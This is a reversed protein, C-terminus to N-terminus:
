KWRELYVLCEKLDPAGHEGMQHRDCHTDHRGEQEISMM